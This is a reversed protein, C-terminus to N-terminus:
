ILIEVRRMFFVTRSTFKFSWYIITPENYLLGVIARIVESKSLSSFVDTLVTNAPSRFALFGARFFILM